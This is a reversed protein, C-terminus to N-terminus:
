LYKMRINRFIGFGYGQLQHGGRRKATTDAFVGYLCGPLPFFSSIGDSINKLRGLRGAFLILNCRKKVLRYANAESLGSSSGTCLAIKSKLSTM